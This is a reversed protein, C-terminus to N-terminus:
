NTKIKGLDLDDFVVVGKAKMQDIAKQSTDLAVGRSLNKIFIVKYKLAVADLVTARV